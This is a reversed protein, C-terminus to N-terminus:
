VHFGINLSPSSTGGLGRQVLGARQLLLSFGQRGVDERLLIGQFRCGMCVDVRLHWSGNLCVFGFRVCANGFRKFIRPDVERQRSHIAHDIIHLCVSEDLFEYIYPWGFSSEEIPDRGLPLSFSM